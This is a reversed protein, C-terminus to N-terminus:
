LGSDPSKPGLKQAIRKFLELNPNKPMPQDVKFFVRRKWYGLWALSDTLELHVPLSTRFIKQIAEKLIAQETDSLASRLAIVAAIADQFLFLQHDAIQSMKVLETKTTSPVFSISPHFSAGSTDTLLDRIRTIVPDLVPLKLGSQCPELWRARDGLEYRILPMGPNTLSTVVVKGVEGIQCPEGEDNIIELYNHFQLAHLHDETPCQIALFGFEETSYRDVIRAGFIEKADKRLDQDISDAFTLIQDVYFKAIPNKQQESVLMRLLQGNMTVTSAQSSAILLLIEKPTLKSVNELSLPGTPGLYTFPEGYSQSQTSEKSQTLSLLGKRLDRKQLIADLLRIAVHRFHYEPLFKQIQVPQGTSGSTTALQYNNPNSGSIWVKMWDQHQQVEAKTLIPLSALLERYNSNQLKNPFDSGIREQWWILNKYTFALVAKLKKDLIPELDAPELNALTQYEKVIALTKEKRADFAVQNDTM